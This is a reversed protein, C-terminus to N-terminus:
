HYLSIQSVDWNSFNLSSLTFFEIRFFNRRFVWSSFCLLSSMKFLSKLFIVSLCLKKGEEKTNEWQKANKAHTLYTAFSTFFEFGSNFPGVLGILDTRSQSHCWHIPRPKSMRRKRLWNSNIKEFYQEKLKTLCKQFYFNREAYEGKKRCIRLIRLFYKFM